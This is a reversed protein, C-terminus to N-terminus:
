TAIHRMCCLVGFGSDGIGGTLMGHHPRFGHCRDGVRDQPGVKGRGRRSKASRSDTICTEKTDFVGFHRVGIDPIQQWADRRPDVTGTVEPFRSEPSGPAYIEQIVFGRVGFGRFEPNTGGTWSHDVARKDFRPFDGTKRWSRRDKDIRPIASRSKLTCLFRTDGVGSDRNGSAV